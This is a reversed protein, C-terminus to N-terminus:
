RCWGTVTNAVVIPRAYTTTIAPRCPPSRPNSGPARQNSGMRLRRAACHARDSRCPHVRERARTRVSPLAAPVAVARLRPPVFLEPLLCCRTRTRPGSRVFIPIAAVGVSCVPEGADSCFCAVASPTIKEACGPLPPRGVSSKLTLTSRRIAADNKQCNPPPYLNVGRPM